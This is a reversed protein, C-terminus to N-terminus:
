RYVYRAYAKSASLISAIASIQVLFLNDKVDLYQASNTKIRIYKFLCEPLNIISYTTTYTKGDFGKNIYKVKEEEQVKVYTCGDCPHVCLSDINLKAIEEKTLKRGEVGDKANDKTKSTM